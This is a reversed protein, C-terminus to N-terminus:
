QDKVKESQSNVKVVLFILNYNYTFNFFFMSGIGKKKTPPQKHSTSRKMRIMHGEGYSM